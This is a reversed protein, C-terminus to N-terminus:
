PIVNSGGNPPQAAAQDVNLAAMGFSAIIPTVFAAKLLLRRLKARNAEEIGDLAADVNKSNEDM